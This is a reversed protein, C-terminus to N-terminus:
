SGGERASPAEREARREEASQLRVLVAYVLIKAIFECPIALLALGPAADLRAILSAILDPAAIRTLVLAVLLVVLYKRYGLFVFWPRFSMLVGVGHVLILTVLVITLAVGASEDARPALFVALLILKATTSLLLFWWSCFTRLFLILFLTHVLQSMLTM